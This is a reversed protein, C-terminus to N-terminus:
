FVRTKGVLTMLTLHKGGEISAHLKVNNFNIMAASEQEGHKKDSKTYSRAKKTSSQKIAQFKVKVKVKILVFVLFSFSSKYIQIRRIACNM